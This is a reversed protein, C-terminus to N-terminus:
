VPQIGHHVVILILDQDAQNREASYDHETDKERTVLSGPGYSRDGDRMIGQLVFAVEQGLHRHRIFTHGAALRVLGAEVGAAGAFRPGPPFHQYDIGPAWTLWSAAQDVRALVARMAERSLDFVRMLQDVFPAFRDSSGLSAMLRSRVSPSPPEPPLADALAETLADVERRLSPSAALLADVQQTQEPPLTGLVYDPLLEDMASRM